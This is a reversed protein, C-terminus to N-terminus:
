TCPVRYDFIMYYRSKSRNILNRIAICSASAVRTYGTRLATTYVGQRVEGAQGVGTYQIHVVGETGLYVSGLLHPHHGFALLRLSYHIALCTSSHKATYLATSSEPTGELLTAMQPSDPPPESAAEMITRMAAERRGVGAPLYYIINNIDNAYRSLTHRDAAAHSTQYRNGM